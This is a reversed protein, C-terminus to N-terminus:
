GFLANIDDETIDSFAEPIGSGGVGSSDRSLLETLLEELRPGHQQVRLRVLGLSSREDFVVLLITNAVSSIHLSETKGEHFLTSFSTEGVLQAVGETAAVNGATLSALATPDINTLDGASALRQGAKDILFVFKANAEQNLGELLGVLRTHDNELIVLNSM